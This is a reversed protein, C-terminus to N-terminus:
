FAGLFSEAERRLRGLFRSRAIHVANVSMGLDTAVQAASQEELTTRRFAEWTSDVIEARVLELM